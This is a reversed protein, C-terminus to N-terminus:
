STLLVVEEKLNLVPRFQERYATVLIWVSPYFPLGIDRWYNKMVMEPLDDVMEQSLGISAFKEYPIENEEFTTRM